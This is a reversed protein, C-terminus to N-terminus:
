LCSRTALSFSKNERRTLSFNEQKKPENKSRNGRISSQEREVGLAAIWQRNFVMEGETQEGRSNNWVRGHGPYAGVRCEFENVNALRQRVIAEPNWASTFKESHQGSDRM